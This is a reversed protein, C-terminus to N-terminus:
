DDRDPKRRDVLPPNHEVWGRERFERRQREAVERPDPLAALGNEFLYADRTSLILERMDVERSDDGPLWGVLNQEGIAPAESMSGDGWWITLGGYGGQVASVQDIPIVRSLIHGRVYVADPYLVLKPRLAYWVLGVGLAALLWLPEYAEGAYPWFAATVMAVGAAPFLIRQWWPARWAALPQSSPLHVRLPV